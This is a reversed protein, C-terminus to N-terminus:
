DLCKDVTDGCIDSKTQWYEDERAVALQIHKEFTQIISRSYKKEATSDDSDGDSCESPIKEVAAKEAEIMEPSKSAYQGKLTQYTANCQMCKMMNGAENRAMCTTEATCFCIAWEDKVFLGDTELQLERSVAYEAKKSM